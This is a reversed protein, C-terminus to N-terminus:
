VEKCRKGCFFASSSDDDFADMPQICPEHYKEECLHCTLVTPVADDDKGRQHTNGVMGCYKCTCYVCNWNGSPFAEMDLCSQHFTSPCGDCCILDGGDGCIGCTDDNPDEGGFDVFHLGKRESHQQKNWADLLCQLLPVETELCINQFPRLSKSGVHTEFEAITFVDSCCNCQIGDRTIRGSKSEHTRTRKQILYEVNADQPVTGSDIMWSLLTRKGEYLVYGDNDSEAGDMSNRVLLAYQKRKQTQQLKRNRSSMQNERQITGDSNEIRKLISLEEEPIPTFVFGNPCTQSDGSEYYNKLVKYALTVSWHTKGEPNVYVADNYERKNRPRYDITWGAAKLMNVIRDRLAQKAESRKLEGEDGVKKVGKEDGSLSAKSENKEMDDFRDKNASRKLNAEKEILRKESYSTNAATNFKLNGRLKKRGRRLGGLRKRRDIVKLGKSGGQLKAPKAHRCIVGEMLKSKRQDIEEMELEVRKDPSGDNGQVKPPRGRQRMVKMRSECDFHGGEGMEADVATMEVGDDINMKPPSEHKHNAAKRAEVDSDYSEGAEKEVGQTRQGKVPRGHGRNHSSMKIDGVNSKDSEEAEVKIGKKEFVSNEQVKRPRGRNGKSEKSVDGDFRGRERPETTFGKKAYRDNGLVKPPRGRKRKLKKRVQGDPCSEGVQRKLTKKEFGNKGQFKPPRGRKRKELEDVKGHANKVEGHSQDNGEKVVEVTKMESSNGDETKVVRHEVKDGEIVSVTKVASRSRLVRGSFQLKCELGEEKVEKKVSAQKSDVKDEVSGKHKGDDDNLEDVKMNGVVGDERCEEIEEKKDFEVEKLSCGLPEDNLDLVPQKVEGTNKDIDHRLLSESVDPKFLFCSSGLGDEM